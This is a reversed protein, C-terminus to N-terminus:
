QLLEIQKPNAIEIEPRGEAEVFGRVRLMKGKYALPDVGMARFTKMDDPSIIVTLATHWDPGFNLFARGNVISSDFVRGMVVQFTGIDVAPVNDASRVQYAPLAWIGANAARAAIEADYLERYCEGRDPSLDVRALGRRLLETQIWTGDQTFAQVRVRDYRDEKPYVAYAVLVQGKVLANLADYAQTTLLQPAHDAADHPLRIGELSLARGDDLVLVGNHEVRVIHADSIEVLGACDPAAASAAATCLIAALLIRLGMIGGSLRM